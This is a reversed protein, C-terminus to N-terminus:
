LSFYLLIERPFDIDGGGEDDQGSDVTESDSIDAEIRRLLEERAVFSSKASAASTSMERGEEEACFLARLKLVADTIDEKGKKRRGLLRKTRTSLDRKRANNDKRNFKAVGVDATSVVTINAGLDCFWKGDGLRIRTKRIFGRLASM